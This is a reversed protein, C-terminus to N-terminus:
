RPGRLAMERSDRDAGASRWRRRFAPVFSAHAALVLNHFTDFVYVVGSIGDHLDVPLRSPKALFSLTAPQHAATVDFAGNETSSGGTRLFSTTVPM